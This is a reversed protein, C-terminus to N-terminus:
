HVLGPPTTSVRSPWTHGTGTHHLGTYQASDAAVRDRAVNPSPRMSLQPGTHQTGAHLSLGWVALSAGRSSTRLFRVTVDRRNGQCRGPVRDGPAPEASPADGQESRLACGPGRTGRARAARRRPVQAAEAHGPARPRERGALPGNLHISTALSRRPAGLRAGSPSSPPLRGSGRPSAGPPQPTTRISAGEARSVRVGPMNGMHSAAEGRALACPERRWTGLRRTGRM